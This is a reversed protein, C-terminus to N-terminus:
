ACDVEMDLANEATVYETPCPVFPREAEEYEETSLALRVCRTRVGKRMSQVSDKWPRFEPLEWLM